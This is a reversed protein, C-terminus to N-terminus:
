SNGADAEPDNSNGVARVFNAHDWVSDGLAVNNWIHSVLSANYLDANDLCQFIKASVDSKLPPLKDGFMQLVVVSRDSGTAATVKALERAKTSTEAREQLPEVSASVARRKTVVPTTFVPTKMLASTSPNSPSSSQDTSASTPLSPASGGRILSAAAGRRAKAMSQMQARMRQTRERERRPSSEIPSSFNKAWTERDIRLRQRVGVLVPSVFTEEAERGGRSPTISTATASAAMSPAQNKCDICRCNEGCPVGAQFCECYKKRCASKKCHCGHKHMKKSVEVGGHIGGPTTGTHIASTSRGPTAGVGIKPKFANPNKELRLVMAQKRVAETAKTNACGHCNCNEDCYGGSAFCECYLKLCKSKKCNCPAKKAVKTPDPINAVVSVKSSPLPTLLATETLPSIGSKVDGSMGMSMPIPTKFPTTTSARPADDLPSLDPVPAPSKRLRLANLPPTKTGPISGFRTGGPTLSRISKTPTSMRSVPPRASSTSEDGIVVRLNPQIRSPVEQLSQLPSRHPSSRPAAGPGKVPTQLLKRQTSTKQGALTSLARKGVKRLRTKRKLSDNIAQIAHKSQSPASDLPVHLRVKMVHQAGMKQREEKGPTASTSARINPFIDSMPSPTTGFISSISSVSRGGSLRVNAPTKPTMQVSRGTSSPESKTANDEDDLKPMPTPTLRPFETASAHILPSLRLSLLNNDLEESPGWPSFGPFLMLDDQGAFGSPVDVFDELSDDEEFSSGENTNSTDLEENALLDQEDFVLPAKGKRRNPLSRSRPPPSPTKPGFSLTHRPWDEAEHRVTIPIKAVHDDSHKPPKQPTKSPTPRAKDSLSGTRGRRQAAADRPTVRPTSRNFPSRFFSSPSQLSSATRCTPPSSAARAKGRIAPSPTFLSVDTTHITLFDMLNVGPSAYPPLIGMDDEFDAHIDSGLRARSPTRANSDDSASRPRVARDHSGLRRRRLPRRPSPTTASLPRKEPTKRDM